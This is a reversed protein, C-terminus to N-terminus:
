TPKETESIGMLNIPGLAEKERQFPKLLGLPIHSEKPIPPIMVSSEKSSQAM